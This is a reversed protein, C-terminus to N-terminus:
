ASALKLGVMQDARCVNSIVKIGILGEIFLIILKSM